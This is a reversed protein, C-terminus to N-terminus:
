RLRNKLYLFAEDHSLATFLGWGTDAFYYFPRENADIFFRRSPHIGIPFAPTDAEFRSPGIEAGAPSAALVGTGASQFLLLFCGLPVLRRGFSPHSSLFRTEYFLPIKM